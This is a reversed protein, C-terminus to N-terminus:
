KSTYIHFDKNLMIKEIFASLDELTDKNSSMSSMTEHGDETFMIENYDFGAKNDIDERWQVRLKDPEAYFIVVPDSHGDINEISMYNDNELLTKWLEIFEKEIM